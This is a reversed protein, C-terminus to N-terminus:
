GELALRIGYPTLKWDVGVPEVIGRFLLDGMALGDCGTAREVEGISYTKNPDQAMLKVAKKQASEM